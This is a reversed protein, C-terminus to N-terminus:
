KLYFKVPVTVVSHQGKGSRVLPSFKARIAANIAAQDLIPYGSSTEVSVETVEGYPNIRVKLFVVGEINRRLAERPYVPTPFNIIEQDNDPLASPPAPPLIDSSPNAEPTSPAQGQQALPTHERVEADPPVLSPAPSVAEQHEPSSFKHGANGQFFGLAVVALGIMVLAFLVFRLLPKRYDILNWVAIKLRDNWSVRFRGTM